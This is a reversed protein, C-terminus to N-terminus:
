ILLRGLDRDLEFTKPHKMGDDAGCVIQRGRTGSATRSNLFM